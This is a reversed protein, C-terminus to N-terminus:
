AADPPAKRKKSSSSSSSAAESVPHRPEAAGADDGATPKAPDPARWLALKKLRKRVPKVAATLDDLAPLRASRHTKALATATALLDETQLALTARLAPKLTADVYLVAAVALTSAECLLPADTAYMQDIVDRARTATTPDDVLAEVLRHPQPLRLDYNVGALLVPEFDM